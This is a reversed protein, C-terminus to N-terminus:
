GVEDPWTEVDYGLFKAAERFDAVRSEDLTFICAAGQWDGVWEIDAGFQVGLATTSFMDREDPMAGADIELGEFPIILRTQTM